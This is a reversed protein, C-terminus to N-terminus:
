KCFCLNVLGFRSPRPTRQPSPVRLGSALPCSSDVPSFPASDTPSFASLTRKRSPARLGKALHRASDEPSIALPHRQRSPRPTRQRSPARLERALHHASDAPSIPKGHLLFILREMFVASNSLCSTVITFFSLCCHRLLLLPLSPSSSLSVSPFRNGVIFSSTTTAFFFASPFRSGAILFSVVTAFFFASPFRSKRTTHSLTTRLMFYDSGLGHLTVIVLDVDFDPQDISALADAISKAHKMYAVDSQNGKQLWKRKNFEEVAFCAPGLGGLDMHYDIGRNVTMLIRFGNEAICGYEFLYSNAATRKVPEKKNNSHNHNQNMKHVEVECNGLM